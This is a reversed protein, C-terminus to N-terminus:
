NNLFKDLPKKFLFSSIWNLQTYALISKTVLQTQKATKPM